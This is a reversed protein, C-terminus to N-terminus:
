LLVDRALCRTTTLTGNLVLRGRRNLITNCFAEGVLPYAGCALGLRCDQVGLKRGWTTYTTDNLSFLSVRFPFYFFSLANGPSLIGEEGIAGSAGGASLDM